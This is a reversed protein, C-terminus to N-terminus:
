ICMKLPYLTGVHGNASAVMPLVFLRGRSGTLRVENERLPPLTIAQDIMHQVFFAQATGKALRDGPDMADQDLAELTPSVPAFDHLLMQRKVLPVSNWAGVNWYETLTATHVDFTRDFAREM